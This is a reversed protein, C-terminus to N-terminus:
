TRPARGFVVDRVVVRQDTTIVIADALAGHFSARGTAQLGISLLERVIYLAAATSLPV